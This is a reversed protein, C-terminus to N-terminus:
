RMWPRDPGSIPFQKRQLPLLTRYPEFEDLRDAAWSRISAGLQALASWRGCRDGGTKWATWLKRRHQGDTDVLLPILVTNAALARRPFEVGALQAAAVVTPVLARVPDPQGVISDAALEPDCQKAAAAFKTGVAGARDRTGRM